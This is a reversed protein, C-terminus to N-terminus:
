RGYGHRHHSQRYQLSHLGREARIVEVVRIQGRDLWDFADQATRESGIEDFRDLAFGVTYRITTSGPFRDIQYKGSDIGDIKERVIRMMDSM